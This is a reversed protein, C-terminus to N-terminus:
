YVGTRTFSGSVRFYIIKFKDKSRSRLVNVELKVLSFRVTNVYEQKGNVKM